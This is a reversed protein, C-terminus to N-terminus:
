ADAQAGEYHHYITSGDPLTTCQQVIHGHEDYVYVTTSHIYREGTPPDVPENAPIEDAVYSYGDPTIQIDPASGAAPVPSAKSRLAWGQWAALLAGPIISLVSRRTTGSPPNRPGPFHSPKVKSM